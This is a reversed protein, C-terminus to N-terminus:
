IQSNELIVFVPDIDINGGQGIGGAVSTSIRSDRLHLRDRTEVRIGGGGAQQSSTTIQSGGKLEIVEGALVTLTGAAGADAAHLLSDSIIRSGDTIQVIAPQIKEGILINGAKGVGITATSIESGGEMYLTDSLDLHISGAAGTRPLDAHIMDLKNLVDNENSFFNEFGSTSWIATGATLMLDAAQLRIVGADGPGYSSNTIRTREGGLRLQSTAVLQISGSKGSGLNSASISADDILVIDKAQILLDTAAVSVKEQIDTVELTIYSEDELLIQNDAILHIWSSQTSARNNVTVGSKASFRIDPAQIMVNGGGGGVGKGEPEFVSALIVSEFDLVVQEDAMLYISGAKFPVHTATYLSSSNTLRIDAAQISLKGPQDGSDGDGRAYLNSRDILVTNDAHLSISSGSRSSPAELRTGVIFVDKAEVRFDGGNTTNFQSDETLVVRGAQLHINGSSGAGKAQTDIQAGHTILIDKGATIELLGGDGSGSTTTAISGDRVYVNHDAEFSVTGGSGSGSTSTNISNNDLMIERAIISVAGGDGAQEMTGATKLDIQSNEIHIKDEAIFAISGGDGTNTTKGEIRTNDTLLIDPARITSGGASGAHDSVGEATIRLASSAIQVVEDAELVLFGGQGSGFTEALIQSDDRVEIRAAQLHAGAGTGAEEAVSGALLVSNDLTIQETAQLQIPLGAGAGRTDANILAGNSLTIQNAQIRLGPQSADTMSWNGVALSGGSLMVQDGEIWIHGVTEGDPQSTVSLVSDTLIIDAPQTTHHQEGDTRIEGASAVATLNIQGGATVLRAQQATVEGSVINLVQGPLMDFQSGQLHIPAIDADAFGFAVPETGSLTADRTADIRFRTHDTFRVYDATSLHLAGALDLTAYEGTSIGSPNILWLASGAIDNRLQGNLTSVPGQVRAIIHRIDAPGSFTASEWADLNFVAFRHYLNSGQTLGWEAPIQYDPGQLRRADGLRDNLVINQRDFYGQGAEQRFQSDLASAGNVRLEPTNLQIAEPTQDGIARATLVPQPQAHWVHLQETAQLRIMGPQGFLGPLDDPSLEPELGDDPEYFDDPAYFDDPNDELGSLVDARLGVKSSADRTDLVIYPAQVQINGADGPGNASTDLLSRILNLETWAQIAIESPMGEFTQAQLTSDQLTIHDGELNIFGSSTQLTSDQLSIQDGLLDISGELSQLQAGDTLTIDRGALSLTEGTNVQLQSGEIQIPGTIQADALSMDDAARLYLSGALDLTAEAGILIGAPNLFWLDAGNALTFLNGRLESAPGQVRAIIQRIDDPGTFIVSEWSALNFRTFSHHLNSGAQYGWAAPIVYDPGNPQPLEGLSGNLVINQRGFYGVGSELWFASDAAEAANVRLEPTDLRIEGPESLAQAILMAQPPNDQLVQIQETAQVHITGAAGDDGWGANSYIGVEGDAGHTDLVIQSARLHVDGVQGTDTSTDILSRVMDLQHQAYLAIGSGAAAEARTSLVSDQLAIQDGEIRIQGGEVQLQAGSVLAIDGSMLHVAEGAGLQLQSGQIRIAGAPADLFGFSEPPAVSLMGDSLPETMYWRSDDAFQLYDATSLHLAGALELTAQDGFQIGAPNILWLDAGPIESRLTGNIESVPGKVRAIIHQLVDPGSFTASEWAALNFASFSHFLNTNQLVGLDAPVQYDPGSLRHAQGLSGDLVINHREFYGAGAELRFSSHEAPAGNVRLEPTEIQIKGSPLGAPSQATIVADTSDQWIQLQETAQIHINGVQGPPLPQDLILRGTDDQITLVSRTTQHDLIDLSIEGSEFFSRGASMEWHVLQGLNDTVSDRIVLQWDGAMGEGHLTSFSMQPLFDGYFPAHYDSYDSIPSVARDHFGAWLDDGDGGIQNFLTLETGAPSILTATLDGISTHKIDVNISLRADEVDQSVLVDSRLGVETDIDQYDLIIQPAQLSIDGANLAYDGRADVLTRTLKLQTQAQLNIHSKGRGFPGDVSSLKSDRINVQDGIVSLYGDEQGAPVSLVSGEITVPALRSPTSTAIGTPSIPIEGVAAVGAIQISAPRIPSVLETGSQLTIEGGVVSIALMGLDIRQDLELKSGELRIPAIEADLFGFSEPAAVTLTVGQDPDAYVRNGDALTVYDATSVHFADQVQLIVNKGFIVGNPNVLYMDAQSTYSHIKGDIWSDNAGTVRSIIHKTDHPAQFDATQGTEVNFEQFSHLLNGGRTTGGEIVFTQGFQTVQTGATGDAILGGGPAAQVAGCWMLSIGSLIFHTILILM